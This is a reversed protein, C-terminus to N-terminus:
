AILLAGHDTAAGDQGGDAAVQGPQDGEQHLHVWHNPRPGVLHEDERHHAVPGVGEDM